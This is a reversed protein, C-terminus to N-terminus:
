VASSRLLSHQFVQSHLDQILRIESEGALASRHYGCHLHFTPDTRFVDQWFRELTVAAEKEGDKCLLAVCEGYVTLGRNKNKAHRRVERLLGCFNTDFLERGPRGNRMVSLVVQSADLSVYREEASCRFLDVGSSELDRAIADRHEPTAVVIAADGFSLSAAFMAGVSKILADDDEYFHVSHVGPFQTSM